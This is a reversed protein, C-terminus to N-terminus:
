RSASEAPNAPSTEESKQDEARERSPPMRKGGGRGPEEGGLLAELNGRALRFGRDLRLAERYEAIAKERMGALQYAYGLNNHARAKGPSLRVTSEWLAAESRYDRNRAITLGALLVVVPIAAPAWKWAPVGAARLRGIGWGACLFIGWGALYLHRENAVDPRPIASNTPSLQLFFWLIGFGVPPCKRLAVVGAALLSLLTACEAVTGASWEPPIRLDPDINLRHPMALRSLLYAAGHVRGPLYEGPTVASFGSGLIHRYVPHLLIAVAACALIAWHVAQRRAVAAPRDRKGPRCVEWLLLAAPLTVATERTALAALFLLPSALHLLFRDGKEVGRAYSSLSWLYFFAMLSMSRGSIYTVAETQVPHLAFLLAAALAATGPDAAAPDGPGRDSLRRTLAYVLLVNAAHLALNFLHFGATGAAGSWNLAYTLKLLPRIGGPLDSLWAAVSHVSPNDVIVNYDDFQFSGSLSNAYGALV